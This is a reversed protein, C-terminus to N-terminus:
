SIWAKAKDVGKGTDEPHKGLLYSIIEKAEILKLEADNLKKPEPKKVEVKVPKRVIVKKVEKTKVM